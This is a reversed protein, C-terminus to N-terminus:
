LPILNPQNLKGPHQNVEGRHPSTSKRLLDPSPRQESSLGYSRVGAMEEDFDSIDSKSLNSVGLESLGSNPPLPLGGGIDNRSL